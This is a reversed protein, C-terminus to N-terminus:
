FHMNTRAGLKLHYLIFLEMKIQSAQHAKIQQYYKQTIHKTTEPHGQPLFLHRHTVVSLVNM